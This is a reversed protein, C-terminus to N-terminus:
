DRGFFEVEAIAVVQGPPVGYTSRITFRVRVADSVKVTATQPDPEDLLRLTTRTLNGARDTVAAEVEHPRGQTLFEKRAGSVGTTIILHLLRVPRPLDVEVWGGVAQDARVAWYRNKAGDVLQEPGHGAASGSARAAAPTIPAATAIRDKVETVIWRLADHGPGLAAAALLVVVLILLLRRPWPSPRLIRRRDGAEYVRPRTLRRWLRVWWSARGATAGATLANGCRRCFRRQPDNGAGCRGCVVEGPAPGRDEPPVAPPRRVQREGPKVVAPEVATAAPGETRQAADARTEGARGAPSAVSPRDAGPARTETVPPATAPSGSAPAGPAGTWELFAGCRGCFQTDALNREGCQGCVIM